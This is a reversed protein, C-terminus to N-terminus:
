KKGQEPTELKELFEVFAILEPHIFFIGHSSTEIYNGDDGVWRPESLYILGDKASNSYHLVWGSVRRGDSLHLLVFTRYEAFVDLWINERGSRTTLHFKRLVKGILDSNLLVSSLVAAFVSMATLWVLSNPAFAIGYSTVDGKKTENLTVAADHGVLACAAYIILSWMLASVISKLVDSERRYVLMGILTTVLFGPALFLLINLSAYTLEMELNSINQSQGLM